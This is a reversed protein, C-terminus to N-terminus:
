STLASLPRVTTQSQSARCFSTVMWRDGHRGPQSAPHQGAVVVLHLDGVDDARQFWFDKVGHPRRHFRQQGLHDVLMRQATVPPPDRVPGAEEPDQDPKDGAAGPDIDFPQQVPRHGVGRERGGRRM